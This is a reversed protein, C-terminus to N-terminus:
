QEHQNEQHSDGVEFGELLNMQPHGQNLCFSSSGSFNNALAMQTINLSSSLSSSTHPSSNAGIDFSNM